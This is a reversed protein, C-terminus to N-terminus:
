LYWPLKWETDIKQFDQLIESDEEIGFLVWSWFLLQLKTCQWVKCNISYVIDNCNALCPIWKGKNRIGNEHGIDNMDINKADICAMGQGSCVELLKTEAVFHSCNCLEEAKQVYSELM